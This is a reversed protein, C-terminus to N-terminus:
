PPGELLPGRPMPQEVLKLTVLFDDTSTGEIAEYLRDRHSRWKDALPPIFVTLEVGAERRMVEVRHDLHGERQLAKIVLITAEPLPLPEKTEIYGRRIGENYVRVLVGHDLMQPQFRYPREVVDKYLAVDEDHCSLDKAVAEVYELPAEDDAWTLYCSAGYQGHRSFEAPVQFHSALRQLFRVNRCDPVIM